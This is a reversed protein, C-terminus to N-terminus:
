GRGSNVEMLRQQVLPLHMNGLVKSALVMDDPLWYSDALGNIRALCRPTLGRRVGDHLLTLKNAPRTVVTWFPQGHRRVTLRTGNHGKTDDIVLPHSYDNFWSPMLKQQWPPLPGAKIPLSPILDSIADHWTRWPEYFLNYTGESNDYHTAPPAISSHAFKCM